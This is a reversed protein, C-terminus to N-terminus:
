RRGTPLPRTPPPQKGAMSVGSVLGRLRGVPLLDFHREMRAVQLVGWVQAQAARIAPRARSPMREVVLLMAGLGASELHDVESLDFVIRARGTWPRARMEAVCARAVEFGFCGSIAIRWEEIGENELIHIRM